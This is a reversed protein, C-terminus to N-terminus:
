SQAHATLYNSVFVPVREGKVTSQFAETGGLLHKAEDGLDVLELAGPPRESVDGGFPERRQAM